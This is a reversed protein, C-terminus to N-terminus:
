KWLGVDALSTFWSAFLEDCTIMVKMDLLANLYKLQMKIKTRLVFWVNSYQKITYPCWASHCSRFQVLILSSREYAVLIDFSNNSSVCWQFFWHQATNFAHSTITTTLPTSFYPKHPHWVKASAMPLEKAQRYFNAYRNPKDTIRPLNSHFRGIRM